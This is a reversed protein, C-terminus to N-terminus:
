FYSTFKKDFFIRIHRDVNDLFYSNLFGSVIEVGNEDVTCIRPGISSDYQVILKSHAIGVFRGSRKDLGMDNLTEPDQDELLGNCYGLAQEEDATVTTWNSISMLRNGFLPYNDIVYFCIFFFFIFGFMSTLIGLIVVLINVKKDGNEKKEM